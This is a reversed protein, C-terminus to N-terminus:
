HLLSVVVSSVEVVFGSTVFGLRGVSGLAKLLDKLSCLRRLRTDAIHM